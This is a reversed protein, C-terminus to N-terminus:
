PKAEITEHAAITVKLTKLNISGLLNIRTRSATTAILKDIEKAFEEM